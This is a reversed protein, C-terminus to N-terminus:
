AMRLWIACSPGLLGAAFLLQPRRQADWVYILYFLGFGICATALDIYASTGDIGVVPAAYVFFAAALGAAPREIRRGFCVMLWVLDLLFAWHVMAAASHKGWLFACLYLLEVGQSLM